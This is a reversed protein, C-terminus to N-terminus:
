RLGEAGLKNRVSLKPGPPMSEARAWKGLTRLQEEIKTKDVESAM